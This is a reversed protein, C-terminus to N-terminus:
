KFTLNYLQFKVSNFSYEKYHTLKYTQNIRNFNAKRDFKGSVKYYKDALILTCDSNKIINDLIQPNELAYETRVVRIDRKSNLISPNETLVYCENRIDKEVMEPLMSELTAIPSVWTTELVYPYFSAMILILFVLVAFVKLYKKLYLNLRFLAFGALITVPAYLPIIYRVHVLNNAIVVFYFSLFFVWLFVLEKLKKRAFFFSLLALLSLILPHFTYSFFSFLGYTEWNNKIADLSFLQPYCKGGTCTYGGTAINNSFFIFYPVLMIIFLTIWIWFGRDMVKKVELKLLDHGFLYFLLFVLIILIGNEPRINVAFAITLLGLLLIKRDRVRFYFLFLVFALLTFFLSTINTEAAKSWTIHMPNLALLLASWLGIERQRFLLYALLFILIISLSGFIVSVSIVAFSNIGFFLFALSLIFSFMLPKFIPSCSEIEVDVYSCLNPEGTKLINKAAEMYYYEDTMMHSPTIPIRLALGTLFILFLLILTNRGIKRFGAKVHKIILSFFVLILILNALFILLQFNMSINKRIFIFLFSEKVVESREPSDGSQRNEGM